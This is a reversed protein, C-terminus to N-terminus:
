RFIEKLASLLKANEDASRVAIRFWSDDLYTYNGCNRVLLKHARLKEEMASVTGSTPDLRCLIFNAYGCIYHIERFDSLGEYLIDKQERCYNISKQIYAGDSLASRMYTQVPGNIHWPILRESLASAIGASSFACGIRLGPCAYFKTLSMVVILYPNTGCRARYSRGNGFDIFSEDVVVYSHHNAAADLIQSLHGESLLKGDPNNPNGLYILSKHTIQACIDEVPLSFDPMELPISVIESGAAQASLRYESFSPEPIIVRKPRLLLILAYMLETAGNGVTIQTTDVGYRGSLATVLDGAETDPYRLVDRDLSQLLADKGKPSLGLPNINISFDIFQDREKEPISFVEGGHRSASHIM